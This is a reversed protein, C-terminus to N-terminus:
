IFVHSNLLALKHCEPLGAFSPRPQRDFFNLDVAQSTKEIPATLAGSTM